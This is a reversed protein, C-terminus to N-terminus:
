FVKSKTFSNFSVSEQNVCEEVVTTHNSTETFLALFATALKNDCTLVTSSACLLIISSGLTGVISIQDVLLIFKHSYKSRDFVGAVSNFKNSGHATKGTHVIGEFDTSIFFLSRRLILPLSQDDHAAQFLSQIFPFL